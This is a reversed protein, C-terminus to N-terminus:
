VRRHRLRRVAMERHRRHTRHSEGPTHAVRDKPAGCDGNELTETLCDVTQIKALTSAPVFPAPDAPSGSSPTGEALDLDPGPPTVMPVELPMDQNERIDEDEGTYGSDEPMAAEPLEADAAGGTSMSQLRVAAPDSSNSSVHGSQQHPQLTGAPAPSTSRAIEGLTVTKTRGASQKPFVSAVAAEMSFASGSTLPPQLTSTSVPTTTRILQHTAVGDKAGASRTGLAKQKGTLMSSGFGRPGRRQTPMASRTTTVSRIRSSSNTLGAHPTAPLMAVVKWGSPVPIGDLDSPSNEQRQSLVGEGSVAALTPCFLGVALFASKLVMVPMM